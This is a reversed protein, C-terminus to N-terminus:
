VYFEPDMLAAMLDRKAIEISRREIEGQEDSVVVEYAGPKMRRDVPAGYSLNFSEEGVAVKVNRELGNDFYVHIQNQRDYAVALTGIVVCAGIAACALLTQHRSM